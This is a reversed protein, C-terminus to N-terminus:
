KVPNTMLFALVPMTDLWTGAMFFRRTGTHTRTITEFAPAIYFIINFLILKVTKTTM